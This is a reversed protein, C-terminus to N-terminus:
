WQPPNDEQFEESYLHSNDNYKIVDEWWRIGLSLRPVAFKMVDEDHVYFLVDRRGGTDPVTRGRSDLDPKTVLTTKYKVRVGMDEQFFKVFDQIESEELLLGPWVCLQKFNEM